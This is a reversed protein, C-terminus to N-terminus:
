GGQGQRSKLNRDLRIKMQVRRNAQRGKATANDAIPFREGYGRMSLRMPSVGNRVLIDFVTRARKESLEQNSELMGMSDTHGEITVLTEPYRKLIEAATALSKRAAPKVEESGVNFALDSPLTFEVVEGRRGVIADQFKARIESAMQNLYTSPDSVAKAQRDERPTLSPVPVPKPAEAPKGSIDAGAALGAPLAAVEGAPGGAAPLETEPTAPATEPSPATEVPPTEAAAAKTEEKGARGLLGEEGTSGSIDISVRVLGAYDETFRPSRTYTVDGSFKLYPLAQVGASGVVQYADDIGGIPEEYRQTLADLSFRWLGPSYIAFARFEQYENEARDASVFAASLGAVDNRDNYAYRLGLEARTADGPNSLEHKISKVGAEVTLGEAIQFDAIAFVSQVEDTNDITPSLFAPHLATQFLDKYTYEEYGVALDLRSISTIRLVYRQQAMASTSVNYFARGTLEVPIGPSIWLDGGIMERDDGQFDGKEMLYSVGIEAFGARSFFLRGGYISDGTDTPTITREVPVGGFVSLGLGVPTRGKLFIGDMIEAATGETLFFRGLRMEANGTPHLYQLYASALDGGTGDDDTDDALDVRGWGYFHFSLPMGGLERASGSLYEYLPAFQQDDGGAVEREYYLLYTRSSLNIEAARCPAPLLAPLLLLLTACCLGMGLRTNVGHSADRM